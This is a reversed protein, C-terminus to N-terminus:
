TGRHRGRLLELAGKVLPITIPVWFPTLIAARQELSFVTTPLVSPDRLAELSLSHARTALARVCEIPRDSEACACAAGLAARPAKDLLRLAKERHGKEVKRGESGSTEQRHRPEQQEEESGDRSIDDDLLSLHSFRSLWSISSTMESTNAQRVCATARALADVASEYKAVVSRPGLLHPLTSVITAVSDLNSRAGEMLRHVMAVHLLFADWPLVADAMFPSAWVSAGIPASTLNNGRHQRLASYSHPQFTTSTPPPLPSQKSSSAGESADKPTARQAGAGCSHVGLGLTCYLHQQAVNLAALMSPRNEEGHLVIAIAEGHGAATVNGDGSVNSSESYFTFLAKTCDGSTDLDDRVSFKLNMLMTKILPEGFTEKSDDDVGVHGLTHRFVEVDFFDHLGKLSSVFAGTVRKISNLSNADDFIHIHHSNTTMARKEFKDAIFKSKFDDECSGLHKCIGLSHSNTSLEIQLDYSHTDTVVIDLQSCYFQLVEDVLLPSTGNPTQLHFKHSTFSKQVEYVVFILIPLLFSLHTAVKRWTSMAASLLRFRFSNIYQMAREVGFSPDSTVNM